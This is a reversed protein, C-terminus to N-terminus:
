QTGSAAGSPKPEATPVPLVPTADPLKADYLPAESLGSLTAVVVVLFGQRYTNFAAAAENYRVRAEAIRNKIEALKAQLTVFTEDKKLDPYREAVAGLRDLAITLESNIEIKRPRTMTVAARVHLASVAGYSEQEQPAYSKITEVYNPILDMRSQLQTELGAWATKVGEDLALLESRAGQFFPYLLVLGAAVIIVLVILCGKKGVAM